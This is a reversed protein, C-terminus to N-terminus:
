DVEHRTLFMAKDRRVFLDQCTNAHTTSNEGIRADARVSDLLVDKVSIRM